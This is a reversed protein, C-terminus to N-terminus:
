LPGESLPYVEDRGLDRLVKSIAESFSRHDLGNVGEQVSLEIVAWGVLTVHSSLQSRGTAQFRSSLRRTELAEWLPRHNPPMCLLDYWIGDEKTYRVTGDVVVESRMTGRPCQLLNVSNRNNCIHYESHYRELRLSRIFNSSLTSRPQPPVLSQRPVFTTPPLFLYTRPQSASGQPHVQYNSSSSGAPLASPVVSNSHLPISHAPQPISSPQEANHTGPTPLHLLNPSSQGRELSSLDSPLSSRISQSDHVGHDELEYTLLSSNRPTTRQPTVVDMGPLDSLPFSIRIDDEGPGVDQISHELVIPDQGLLGPELVLPYFFSEEATYDGAQTMAEQDM